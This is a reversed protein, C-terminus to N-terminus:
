RSMRHRKTVLAYGCTRCIPEVAKHASFGDFIRRARETSLIEDLTQDFLNGLPMSGNHDLCCPVVTGDALVGIQNRLAYCFLEGDEEVGGCPDANGPGSDPWEFKSDFELYLNHCLEYGNRNEKWPAPVYQELMKLIEANRSELGGQNWLRLVIICGKRAAEISFRMVSDIYSQPNDGDNGEFAHLSINTKYPLSDMLGSQLLTGNTTLVPIFGKQRALAIFTPLLKHSCPEGMLHFYLFRVKGKLRDTLTQFENLTLQRHKRTHGPCFRCELNCINTIELYCRTLM